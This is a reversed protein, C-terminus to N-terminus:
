LRGYAAAAVGVLGFLLMMGAVRALRGASHGTPHALLFIGAAILAFGGLLILARTAPDLRRV